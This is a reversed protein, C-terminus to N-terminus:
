MTGYVKIILIFFIRVMNTFMSEKLRKQLCMVRLIPVSTLLWYVREQRKMEHAIVAGYLGAGVVLYDYM